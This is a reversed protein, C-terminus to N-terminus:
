SLIETMQITQKNKLYFQYILILIDVKSFLKHYIKVM